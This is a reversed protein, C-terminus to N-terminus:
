AAVSHLRAITGWGVVSEGRMLCALQGPAVADAPDDLELELAAHRGAAPEGVLRAALPKAHYRLKV